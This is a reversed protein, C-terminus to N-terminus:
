GTQKVANSSLSNNDSGELKRRIAAQIKQEFDPDGPSAIIKRPRQNLRDMYAEFATRDQRNQLFFQRLEDDSMLSYDIQSM